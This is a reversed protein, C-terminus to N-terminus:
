NKDYPSDPFPMPSMEGKGDFLVVVNRISLPAKEVWHNPDSNEKPTCDDYSPSCYLTYLIQVRDREVVVQMSGTKGKFFQYYSRLTRIKKEALESDIDASIRYYYQFGGEPYKKAWYGEIHKPVGMRGIDTSAGPYGNVAGYGFGGGGGLVDSVSVSGISYPGDLSGANGISAVYFPKEECGNLLILTILILLRKNMTTYKTKMM